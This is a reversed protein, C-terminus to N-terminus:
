MESCQSRLYRQFIEWGDPVFRWGDPGRALADLEVYGGWAIESTQHAIPGAWRVRYVATHSRSAPGEYRHRFVPELLIRGHIGLEEGIERRAAADYDEGAQVM